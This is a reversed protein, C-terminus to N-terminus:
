EGSKRLAEETEAKWRPVNSEARLRLLHAVSERKTQEAERSTFRAQYMDGWVENKADLEIQAGDAVVYSCCTLIYGTRKLEESGQPSLGDEGRVIADNGSLVKGACTLCNGRRCDSPLFPLCLRDMIGNRELAALITEGLYADVECARGDHVVTARFAPVQHEEGTLRIRTNSTRIGRYNLDPLVHFSPIFM